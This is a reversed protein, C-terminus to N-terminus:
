ELLNNILIKYKNQLEINQPTYKFIIERNKKIYSDFHHNQLVNNLIKGGSEYNFEDYYYGINKILKANHIIPYGMWALDFYLYNLNNEMQFSVAYSAYDKMFSLTNFRAESTIKKDHHLDLSNVIKQVESMQLNGHNVTNNLYVHDINKNIRYSNECVLLAPICWKMLSLNPEFIAIKNTDKKKYLLDNIDETNSVKASFEIAKASWVFPVGITKTRYLTKLYHLNTNIMQPIVWIEDYMNELDKRYNNIPNGKNYLMKEGDCLYTNGCNYYVCKVGSYRLTKNLQITYSFSLFFIIDFNITFIDVLNIVKFNEHYLLNSLLDNKENLNYNVIFYVQYDINAFLEGLYIANQNLGNSFLNGIKDPINLTIGIIKKNNKKKIIDINSEVISEKNYYHNLIIKDNYYSSIYIFDINTNTRKEELLLIKEKNNNQNLQLKIINYFYKCVIFYDNNLEDVDINIINQLANYIIPNNKTCGIFGNFLSDNNLCSKVTFLNYDNIFDDLNNKIMADSDIYIGGNLYLFYYRFFDAKHAGNKISKFKEILNPFEDIINDKLYQLIESDTFHYYKYDPLYHLISDIIYQPPKQVSTQIIIKPIM